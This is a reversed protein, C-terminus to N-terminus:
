EDLDTVHKGMQIYLENLLVGAKLQKQLIGGIDDIRMSNIASNITSVLESYIEIKKFHFLHSNFKEFSELYKICNEAITINSNNYEWEIFLPMSKHVFEKYIDNKLHVIAIQQANKIQKNNSERTYDNVMIAIMVNVIISVYIGISSLTGGVYTGFAAWNQPDNSILPFHYYYVVLFGASSFLACLFVIILTTKKNNLIFNIM